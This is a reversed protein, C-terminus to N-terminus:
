IWRRVRSKYSLYATGFKKELYREEREIVGREMVVLLPALLVLSIPARRFTAIGAYTLTLGLYIPNRSYAYPGDEVVVTTPEYVDVHTGARKMTAFAWVFSAVGAILAKASATRSLAKPVFPLPFISDLLLGAALTGLFLYPPPAIM